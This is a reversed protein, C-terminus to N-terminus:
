GAPGRHAQGSRDLVALPLSLRDWEAPLLLLSRSVQVVSNEEVDRDTMSSAHPEGDEEEEIMTPKSSLHPFYPQQKNVEYEM